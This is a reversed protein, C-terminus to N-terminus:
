IYVAVLRWVYYYVAVGLVYKRQRVRRWVFRLGGSVDDMAARDLKSNKSLDEIKLNTM